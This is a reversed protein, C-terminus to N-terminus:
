GLELSTAAYEPWPLQPENACAEEAEEGVMVLCIM